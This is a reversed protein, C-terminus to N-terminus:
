TILESIRKTVRTEDVREDMRFATGWVPMEAPGHAPMIVGLRLVESVYAEPLEGGQTRALKTLDPPVRYPIPRPRRGENWASTVGTM